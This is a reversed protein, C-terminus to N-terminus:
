LALFDELARRTVRIARGLRISKLVGANILDYVCWKSCRLVAAVEEVRGVEPYDSLTMVVSRPTATEDPRAIRVRNMQITQHEDMPAEEAQKWISSETVSQDDVGPTASVSASDTALLTACPFIGPQLDRLGTAHGAVV